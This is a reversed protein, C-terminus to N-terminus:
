KSSGQQQQEQQGKQQGQEQPQQEQPQGHEQEAQKEAEAGVGFMELFPEYYDNHKIMCQFFTKFQLLAAPCCPTM